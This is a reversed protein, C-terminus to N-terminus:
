AKSIILILIRPQKLSNNQWIVHVEFELRCRKCFTLLWATFPWTLAIKFNHVVLVKFCFPLFFWQSYNLSDNPRSKFSVEFELKITAKYWCKVFLWINKQNAVKVSMGKKSLRALRYDCVPWFLYEAKSNVSESEKRIYKFYKRNIYIHGWWFSNNTFVYYIWSTLRKFSSLRSM